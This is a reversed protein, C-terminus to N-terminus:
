VLLRHSYGADDETDSREEPAKRLRREVMNMSFVQVVLLIGAHLMHVKSANGGPGARLYLRVGRVVVRNVHDPANGSRRADLKM